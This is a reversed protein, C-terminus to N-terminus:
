RLALWGRRKEMEIVGNWRGTRQEDSSPVKVLAAEMWKNESKSATSSVTGELPMLNINGIGAM